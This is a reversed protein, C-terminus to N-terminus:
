PGLAGVKKIESCNQPLEVQVNAAGEGELLDEEIGGWDEGAAAVESHLVLM